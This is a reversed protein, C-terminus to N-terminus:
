WTPPQADLNAQFQSWVTTEFPGTQGTPMGPAQAIPQLPLVSSSIEQICGQTISPIFTPFGIQTVPPKLEQRLSGLQNARDFSSSWVSSSWTEAVPFKTPM